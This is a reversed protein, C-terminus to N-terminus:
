KLGARMPDGNSAILREGVSSTIRRLRPIVEEAFLTLNKITKWNPMDGLHLHCTITSSKAEEAWRAITEAVHQATGAIVRSHTTFADWDFGAGGHLKALDFSM